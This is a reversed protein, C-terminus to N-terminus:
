FFCVRGSGGHCVELGLALDDMRWLDKYLMKYAKEDCRKGDHIQGEEVLVSNKLYKLKTCWGALQMTRTNTNYSAFVYIDCENNRQKWQVYSSYEPMAHVTRETTKVDVRQRWNGGKCLVDYGLGDHYLGDYDAQVNKQDCYWLFALEGLAGSVQGEGQEKITRHNFAAGTSRQEAWGVHQDALIIQPCWRLDPSKIKFKV